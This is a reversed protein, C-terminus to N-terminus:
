PTRGAPARVTNAERVPALAPPRAGVAAYLSRVRASTGAADALPAREAEPREAGVRGELLTFTDGLDLRRALPRGAAALARAGDGARRRPLVLACAPARRAMGAVIAALGGALAHRGAARFPDAPLPGAGPEFFPPNAVALDFGGAKERRVDAVRFRVRGALGSDAASRRALAIWAPLVDIGEGALGRSALLLAVIGSGTGVDLFRAGAHRELVWGALLFPEMAYRFGRRPQHVVLGPAPEDRTFGSM